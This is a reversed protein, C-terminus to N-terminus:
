HGPSSTQMDLYPCLSQPESVDSEEGPAESGSLVTTAHLGGRAPSTEQDVSPYARSDEAEVPSTKERPPHTSESTGLM